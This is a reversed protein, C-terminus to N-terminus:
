DATPLFSAHPSVGLKPAPLPAAPAPTQETSHQGSRRPRRTTQVECNVAAMCRETVQALRYYDQLMAAHEANMELKRCVVDKTCQMHEGGPGMRRIKRTM